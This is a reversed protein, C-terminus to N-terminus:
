ATPLVVIPNVFVWPRGGKSIEVRYVGPEEGVWELSGDGEEVLCGDRLGGEPLDLRLTFRGTPSVRDGSRWELSESEGGRWTLGCPNGLAHLAVYLRGTLTYYLHLSKPSCLVQPSSTLAPATGLPPSSRM